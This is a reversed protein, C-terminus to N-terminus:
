FRDSGSLTQGTASLNLVEVGLLFGMFSRDLQNECEFRNAVKEAFFPKDPAWGLNSVLYMGTSIELFFRKTLKAKKPEATPESM